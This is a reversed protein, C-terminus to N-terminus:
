LDGKKFYSAAIDVVVVTFAGIILTLIDKNGKPIEIFVLAGVLGLFGTTILLALIPKMKERKLPM